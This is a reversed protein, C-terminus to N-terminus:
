ASPWNDGAFHTRFGFVFIVDQTTKYMKDLKEWIEMKPVITKGLHLVNIVMQKQQLPPDTM